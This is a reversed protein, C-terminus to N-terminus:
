QDVESGIHVSWNLNFARGLGYFLDSNFVLCNALLDQGMLEDTDGFQTKIVVKVEIILIVTSRTKM